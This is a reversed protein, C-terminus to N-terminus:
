GLEHDHDNHLPTRELELLKSELGAAVGSGFLGEALELFNLRFRSQPGTVMTEHYRELLVNLEFPLGARHLEELARLDREDGRVMKMLALDHREPVLVELHQLGPVDARTCREEFGEPADYVGVRSVPPPRPLGLEQQLKSGAASLAEALPREIRSATDLDRTAYASSYQLAIAGGGIVVMRAPESLQEDVLRLFRRWEDRALAQEPMGAM